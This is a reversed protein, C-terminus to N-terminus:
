FSYKSTNFGNVTLERTFSEGIKKALEDIDEDSSITAENITINVEGVTNSGSAMSDDIALTPMNVKVYRAEDLFARLLATDTADLFSEPRQMTGDVWALGTYDVLGGADNKKLGGFLSGFLNSGFNAVASVTSKLTDVANKTADALAQAIAATDVKSKDEEKDADTPTPKPNTPTSSKGTDAFDDDHEWDVNDIAAARYKEWMDEWEAIIQAQMDETANVYEDSQKMWEIFTDKDLLIMKILDSYLQTINLMQEFTDTWSQLMSQQQADLALKYEDVNDKLWQMLDDYQLALVEDVTTAFNNADELFANLREDGTQAFEDYAQIQDDLADQQAQAEAEAADWALEKELDTIKKRLEIADKSRTSDMSILALQRQYEALQEYKSAEDEAAKRANLRESILNKEEELAQRKKDIDQAILDWEDQYRDRLAALITEELDVTGQLMSRRTQERTEAESRVTDELDTRTKHIAIQNERLKKTNDAIAQNASEIAEEYGMIADRASYWDDSDKKLTSMHAKLEDIAAQMADIYDLQAQNEVELMRGYNTLEDASEYRTEQAQVMKIYHENMALERKLKELLKATASKGGGGGGGTKVGGSGISLSSVDFWGKLWDPGEQTKFQALWGQGVLEQFLAGAQIGFQSLIAALTSLDIQGGGADVAVDVAAKLKLRDEESLADIQSQAVELFSNVVHMGDQDITAQAGELYTKLTDAGMKKIVDEPMSLLGAVESLEDQSLEKGSKGMASSLMKQSYSLKNSQTILSGMRSVMSKADKNFDRVVNNLEAGEEAGYKAVRKYEDLKENVNDLARAYEEPSEYAAAQLDGYESFQGTMAEYMKKQEPNLSEFAKIYEEQGMTGDYLGEFGLASMLEQLINANSSGSLANNVLGGIIDPSLGAILAAAIAPNESTLAEVDTIGLQKMRELDNENAGATNYHQMIATIEAANDRISLLQNRRQESEYTAVTFSEWITKSGSDAEEVEETMSRLFALMTRVAEGAAEPLEAAGSLVDDFNLNADVDAVMGKVVGTIVSMLDTIVNDISDRIDKNSSRRLQEETMGTISTLTNVVNADYRNGNTWQGYAWNAAQIQSLSQNWTNMQQMRQTGTGNIAAYASSIEGSYLNNTLAENLVANNWNRVITEIDEATAEGRVLKDYGAGMYNSLASEVQSRDVLNAIEDVAAQRQNEDLLRTYWEAVNGTTYLKRDRGYARNYYFDRLGELDYEGTFNGQEDMVEYQQLDKMDMQLLAKQYDSLNNYWKEYTQGELNYMDMYQRTLNGSGVASNRTAAQLQAYRRASDIDTIRYNEDVLQPDYVFSGNEYRYGLPEYQKAFDRIARVRTKFFEHDPMSKDLNRVEVGAMEPYMRNFLQTISNAAQERYADFTGGLEAISRRGSMFDSMDNIGAFSGIRSWQDSTLSGGNVAATYLSYAENFTNLDSRFGEAEKSGAVRDSGLMVEVRKSFGSLIEGAQELDSLGTTIFQVEIKRKLNQGFTSGRETDGLNLYTVLDGYTDKLQKVTAADMGTITNNIATKSDGRQIMGWLKNAATSIQGPTRVDYDVLSLNSQAASLGHPMNYTFQGNAFGTLTIGLRNAIGIASGALSNEPIQKLYDEFSGEKNAEQWTTYNSTDGLAATIFGVLQDSLGSGKFMANIYDIAKQIDDPSEPNFMDSIDPINLSKITDVDSTSFNGTRLRDAIAMYEQMNSAKSIIESLVQEPTGGFLETEAWTRLAEIDGTAQIRALETSVKDVGLYTELESAAQTPKGNVDVEYQANQLLQAFEHINRAQNALRYITGKQGMYGGAQSNRSYPSLTDFWTKYAKEGNQTYFNDLVDASLSGDEAFLAKLFNFRDELSTKYNEFALQLNNDFEDRWELGFEKYKGQLTTKSYTQEKKIGSLENNLDGLVKTPESIDIPNTWSNLVELEAQLNKLEGETMDTIQDSLMQTVEELEAHTSEWMEMLGAYDDSAATKAAEFIDDAEKQLREKYNALENWADDRAKKANSIETSYKLQKGAADKGENAQKLRASAENLKTLANSMKSNDYDEFDYRGTQALRSVELEADKRADEEIQQVEDLYNQHAQGYLESSLKDWVDNFENGSIASLEDMFQDKFPSKDKPNAKRYTQIRDATERLMGTSEDEPHDKIWETIWTEFDADIADITATRRAELDQLKRERDLEIAAFRDLWEPSAKLREISEDITLTNLGGLRRNLIDRDLEASKTQWALGEEDFSEAELAAIEGQLASIQANRNKINSDYAEMQKKNQNALKGFESNEDYSLTSRYEEGGLYAIDTNYGTTLAEYEGVVNRIEAPLLEVIRNRLDAIADMDPTFQGMTWQSYMSIVEDQLTKIYEKRQQQRDYQELAAKNVNYMKSYTYPANRLDENQKIFNEPIGNEDLNGGVTQLMIDWNYAGDLLSQRLEDKDIEGNFYQLYAERVYDKIGEAYDGSLELNGLNNEYQKALNDMEQLVWDEQEANWKDVIARMPNNAISEEAEFEKRIQAIRDEPMQNLSYNQLAGTLGILGNLMNEADGSNAQGILGLVNNRTAYERYYERYPGSITNILQSVDTNYKNTRNQIGAEVIADISSQSNIEYERAEKEYASEFKARDEELNALSTNLEAIRNQRSSNEKKGQEMQRNLETVYAENSRMESATEYYLRENMSLKSFDGSAIADNIRLDREEIAARPIQQELVARRNVAEAEIGERISDFGLISNPYWRARFYAKLIEQAISSVSEEGGYTKNRVTYLYAAKHEEDTRNADEIAQNLLIDFQASEALAGPRTELIEKQKAKVAHEYREEIVRNVEQNAADVAASATEVEEQAINYLGNAEDISINPNLGYYENGERRYAYRLLDNLRNNKTTYDNNLPSTIWSNVKADYEAQKESIAAFQMAELNPINAEHLRMKEQEESLQAETTSIRENISAIEAEKASVEAEHLSQAKNYSALSEAHKKDAEAIEATKAEAKDLSANFEGQSLNADAIAEDIKKYANIIEEFAATRSTSGPITDGNRFEFRAEPNVLPNYKKGWDDIWAEVARYETSIDKEGNVFEKFLDSTKFDTIAQKTAGEGFNSDIAFSLQNSFLDSFYESWMHRTVIDKNFGNADLSDSLEETMLTNFDQQWTKLTEADGYGAKNLINLVDKARDLNLLRTASRTEEDSALPIDVINGNGLQYSTGFAGLTRNFKQGTVKEIISQYFQDQYWVDYPVTFGVGDSLKIKQNKSFDEFAGGLIANNMAHSLTQGKTVEDIKNQVMTLAEKFGDVQAAAAKVQNVFDVGFANGLSKLADEFQAYDASNKFKENESSFDNMEESYKKNINQLTELSKQAETIKRNEREEQWGVNMRQTEKAREQNAQAGHIGAGIALGAGVVGLVALLPVLGGLGSLITGLMTGANAAKIIAIQTALGALAAVVATIVAPIPGLATAAQIAGTAIEIFGGSVGGANFSEALAQFSARLEAIKANLSDIYKEYKADVIGTAGQAVALKEAYESGGEEGLGEMISYFTNTANAGRGAMAYVINQKTVDSDISEWVGALEKLIQVTDKMKGNEDRISVGVRSLARDVDNITTIEGTSSKVYDSENVRRMRSMITSMATGVVNGSLQTKSIAVTLLATLEEYSTGTNAATAATKQLAKQIEDATTAASDGLAALVDIAEQASDVLGNQLATTIIKSATETKIGAVKAFKIIQETRDEVEADNLGQRYLGAKVQAVSTVDTKLGLATAVNSDSITNMENNTKLTIMQIDTMAVDYQKVFTTIENALKTFIRRGFMQTLRTFADGISGAAVTLTGQAGSLRELAEADGNLYGQLEASMQKQRQLEEQEKGTLAGPKSELQKIRADADEKQRVHQQQMNALNERQNLLVQYNRAVVGTTRMQPRLMRERQRDIDEGRRTRMREENEIRNKQEWNRYDILDSETLQLTRREEPTMGSLITNRASEKMDFLSQANALQYREAIQQKRKALENKLSEVTLQEEYDSGSGFGFKSNFASLAKRYNLEEEQAGIEGSTRIQEKLIDARERYYALQGSVIRGDSTVVPNGELAAIAKEDDETKYAKAKLEKYAKTRRNIFDELQEIDKDAAVESRTRTKDSLTKDLEESLKTTDYIASRRLADEYEGRAKQVTEDLAAIEKESAGRAEFEQRRKFFLEELQYNTDQWPNYERKDYGSNKMKSGVSNLQKIYDSFDNERQIAKAMGETSKSGLEIEKRAADFMQMIASSIGNVDVTPNTPPTGGAGGNGGAAVSMDVRGPTSFLGNNVNVRTLLGAQAADQINSVNQKLRDEVATAFTENFPRVLSEYAGGGYTLVGVKTPRNKEDAQQRKDALAYMHVQEWTSRDQDSMSQEQSALGTGHGDLSAKTDFMVVSGDSLRAKLDYKGAAKVNKDEQGARRMKGLEFQVDQEVGLIEADKLLGSLSRAASLANKYRTTVDSDPAFHEGGNEEDPLTSFRPLKKLNERFMSEWIQESGFEEEGGKGKNEMRRRAWAEQTEHLAKGIDMAENTEGKVRPQAFYRDWWNTKDAGEFAKFQSFSYGYGSSGGEDALKMMRLVEGNSVGAEKKAIMARMTGVSVPNAGVTIATILRSPDSGFGEIFADTSNTDRLNGFLNYKQAFVGNGARMNEATMGGANLFAVRNEQKTFDRWAEAAGPQKSNRYTGVLATKWTLLAANLEDKDKDGIIQGRLAAKAMLGNNLKLYEARAKDIESGNELEAINDLANQAAILDEISKSSLPNDQLSKMLSATQVSYASPFNVESFRGFDDYKGTEAAGVIDKFVTSFPRGMYRASKADRSWQALKGKKPFVTDIDYLAALDVGARRARRAAEPDDWNVQSINESAKSVQGLLLPMAAQRYLMRAADEPTLPGEHSLAEPEPIGTNELKGFKDYKLGLIGQMKSSTNKVAQALRGQMIQITDGDFDGGGMKAITRVNMYAGLKSMGFREMMDIFKQSNNLHFQEGLNNPYRMAGLSAAAAFMPLNIAISERGNADGLGMISKLSENRVKAGSLEGLRIAQEWPNSLAMVMGLSGPSFVEGTMQSQKAAEIAKERIRRIIPDSSLLGPNERVAKAQPDTKDGFLIDITAQDDYTLANIRKQWDLQNRMGEKSDFDLYQAVQRSLSDQKAVFDLATSVGRLGGYRENLNYFMDVAEDHSRDVYETKGTAPNFVPKKTYFPTKLLSSDIIADMNRINIFNKDFEEKGYKNITAEYGSAEYFKKMEASANAIPAYIPIDKGYLEDFMEQIPVTQAAGKLGIGRITLDGGPLFGPNWYSTGDLGTISKLDVIATRDRRPMKVAGLNRFPVSPTLHRNPTDLMKAVESEDSLDIGRDFMADFVNVGYNRLSDLAQAKYEDERAFTIIGNKINTPVYNQGGFQRVPYSYTRDNGGFKYSMRKNREFINAVMQKGAETMKPKGDEDWELDLLKGTEPDRRGDQKKQFIEDTLDLQLMVPRSNDTKSGNGFSLHGRMNLLDTYLSQSITKYASTGQLRQDRDREDVIKGSPDPMKGADFDAKTLAPILYRDPTIRIDNSLGRYAHTKPSIRYKNAAETFIPDIGLDSMVRAAEIINSIEKNNRNARKVLDDHTLERGSFPINSGAMGELEPIAIDKLMHGLAESVVYGKLPTKPMTITYPQIAGNQSRTFGVQRTQVGAMNLAREFTPNNSVLERIANYQRTSLQKNNSARAAQLNAASINVPVEPLNSYREPLRSIFSTPAEWQSNFKVAGNSSREVVSRYDSNQNPRIIGRVISRVMSDVDNNSLGFTRSVNALGNSAGANRKVMSIVADETIAGLKSNSMASSVMDVVSRSISEYARNFDGRNSENIRSLVPSSDKITSAFQRVNANLYGNSVNITRVLDDSMVTGASSIAAKFQRASSTIMQAMSWMSSQLQAPIEAFGKLFDGSISNNFTNAMDTITAKTESMSDPLKGAETVLDGMAKKAEEIGNLRTQIDIYMTNSDSM